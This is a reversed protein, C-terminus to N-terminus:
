PPWVRELFELGRTATPRKFGQYQGAETVWDRLGAPRQAPVQPGVQLRALWDPPPTPEGHWFPHPGAAVQAAVVALAWVDSRETAREGRLQEPASWPWTGGAWPYVTHTTADLLRSLGLDIVVPEDWRGGRLVVNSPKFDRHVIEAAHLESLGELCGVIFARLEDDTPPGYQSLAEDVDGGAIFESTIFPFSRGDRATLTGHGVIRVVRDHDLRELALVERRFREPDHAKVIAKVARVDGNREVRFCEGSGSPQGVRVVVDFPGLAHQIDDPELEPM